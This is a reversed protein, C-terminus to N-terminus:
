PPCTMCWVYKISQLMCFSWLVTEWFFHYLDDEWHTQQSMVCLYASDCLRSLLSLHNRLIQPWNRYPLVIRLYKHKVQINLIWAVKYKKEVVNWPFITSTVARYKYPMAIFIVVRKSKSLYSIQISGGDGRNSNSSKLHSFTSWCKRVSESRTFCESQVGGSARKASPGSIHYVIYLM